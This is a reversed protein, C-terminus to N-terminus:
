AEGGSTSRLHDEEVMACNLRVDFAITTRESLDEPKIGRGLDEGQSQSLNEPTIAALRAHTYPASFKAAVNPVAM